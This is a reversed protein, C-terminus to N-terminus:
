VNHAKILLKIVNISSLNIVFPFNYNQDLQVPGQWLEELHLRGPCKSIGRPVTRWQFSRFFAHCTATGRNGDDADGGDEHYNAKVAGCDDRDVVM